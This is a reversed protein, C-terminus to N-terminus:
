VVSLLTNIGNKNSVSEGYRGMDSVDAYAVSSFFFFFFLTNLIKMKCASQVEGSSDIAVRYDMQAGMQQM